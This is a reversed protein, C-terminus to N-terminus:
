PRPGSPMVGNCIAMMDTTIQTLDEILRVVEATGESTLPGFAALGKPRIEYLSIEAFEIATKFAAIASTSPEIAVQQRELFQRLVNRFRMLQGKLAVQQAPMVDLVYEPCLAQDNAEGTAARLANELSQDMYKFTAVLCRTQAQNFIM